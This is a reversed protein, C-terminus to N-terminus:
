HYVRGLSFRHQIFSLTVPIGCTLPNDGGAQCWEQFVRWTGSYQLQTSPTRLAQLSNVMDGDIGLAHLIQRELALCSAEPDLTGRALDQGAGPVAYGTQSSAAM